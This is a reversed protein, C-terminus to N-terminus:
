LQDKTEPISIRLCSHVIMEKEIKLFYYCRANVLINIKIVNKILKSNFIKNKVHKKRQDIFDPGVIQSNRCKIDLLFALFLLVVIEKVSSQERLKILFVVNRFNEIRDNLFNYGYEFLEIM